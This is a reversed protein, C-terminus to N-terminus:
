APPFRQALEEAVAVIDDITLPGDADLRKPLSRGDLLALGNITLM